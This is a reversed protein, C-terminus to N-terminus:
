RRAMMMTNAPLKAAMPLKEFNSIGVTEAEDAFSIRTGADTVFAKPSVAYIRVREGKDLQAYFLNGSQTFKLIQGNTLEYTNKFDAFDSAPLYYRSPKTTIQVSSEQAHAISLSSLVLAAALAILRTTKM